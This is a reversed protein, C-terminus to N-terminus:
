EPPTPVTRTGVLREYLREHADVLTQIDFRREVHDYARAGAASLDEDALSLMAAALREPSRAPVLRGVGDTLVEEVGPVRTGVVPLEAAMAELATLPLGEFLSPMVYVDAAAYYGHVDDVKGTVHVSETLDRARVLRELAAQEAGHGVVVARADPRERVVSSMAEVLYKQGKQPDYRGVNLFTPGAGDDGPLSPPTASRVADRFGAVDIGNYVVSWPPRDFVTAQSERVAESVAVEHSDLPRTARELTSISRYDASALVNHHTSVVADVGAARGALRAVVMAHPLHAHLVDLDYRAITRRARNLARLDVVSGVELNVTTAGAARFDAELDDAGGLRFVVREGVGHELQRLLMTEAGGRGFTGILYGVNM